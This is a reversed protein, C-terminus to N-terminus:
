YSTPNLFSASTAEHLKKKIRYTKDRKAGAKVKCKSCMQQNKVDTYFLCSCVICRKRYVKDLNHIKFEDEAKHNLPLVARKFHKCILTLHAGEVLCPCEHLLCRGGYEYNACFTAPMERIVKLLSKPLRNM